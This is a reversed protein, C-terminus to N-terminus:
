IRRCNSLLRPSSRANPRFARFTDIDLVSQRLMPKHVVARHDNELTGELLPDREVQILALPDRPREAPLRDRRLVDHRFQVGDTLSRAGLRPEASAEGGVDALCESASHPSIGLGPEVPLPWPAM